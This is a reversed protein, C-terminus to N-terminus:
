LVEGKILDRVIYDRGNVMGETSVVAELDGQPLKGGPLWQENAGWERGSPIRPSYLETPKFEIIVLSDGSLQEKPIGM